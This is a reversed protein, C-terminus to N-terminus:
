PAASCRASAKWQDARTVDPGLMAGCGTEHNPEADDETKSQGATAAALTVSPHMWVDIAGAVLDIAV